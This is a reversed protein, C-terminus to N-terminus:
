SVQLLLGTGFVRRAGFQDALRGMLPQAVAAMMM